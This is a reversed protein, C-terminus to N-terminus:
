RNISQESFNNMWFFLQKFFNNKLFITQESFNNMWCCSTRSRFIYINYVNRFFWLGNKFSLNLLQSRKHNWITRSCVNKLYHVMHVFKLWEHFCQLITSLRKEKITLKPRKKMKESSDLENAWRENNKNLLMTRSLKHENFFKMQKSFRPQVKGLALTNVHM